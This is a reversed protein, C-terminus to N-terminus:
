NVDMLYPHNPIGVKNLPFAKWPDDLILVYRKKQFLMTYLKSARKTENRYSSLDFNLAKAIQRQLNRINLAKSMTVWIVDDFNCAENLLENNIHHMITTKGIGGMEFIGIRRVEDDMVHKWVNEMNRASTNECFSGMTRIFWGSTPLADILLGNSFRDKEQLEAVEQIKEVVLKGLKVHSFVNKSGVVEQEERQLTQVDFRDQVVKKKKERGKARLIKFLFINRAFSALSPVQCHWVYSKM